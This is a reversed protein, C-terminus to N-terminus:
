VNGNLGDDNLGDQPHSKGPQTAHDEFHEHTTRHEDRLRANRGAAAKRHAASLNAERTNASSMSCRSILQELDGSACVPCEAAPSSPLVLYEFDHACRECRYEYIPM